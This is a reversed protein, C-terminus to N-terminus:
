NVWSLHFPTGSAASTEALASCPRPEARHQLRQEGACGPPKAPTEVQLDCRWFM